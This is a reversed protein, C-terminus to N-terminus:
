LQHCEVAANLCCRITLCKQWITYAFLLTYILVVFAHLRQLITWVVSIMSYQVNEDSVNLKPKFRKWWNSQNKKEILQSFIFSHKELSDKEIIKMRISQYQNQSADFPTDVANAHFLTECFLQQFPKVNIWKNKAGDLVSQIINQNQNVIKVIKM